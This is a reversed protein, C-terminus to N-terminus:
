HQMKIFKYLTQKNGDYISLLVQSLTILDEGFLNSLEDENGRKLIQCLPQFAQREKFDALVHIIFFLADEEILDLPQAAAHRNLVELFRPVIAGRNGLCYQLTEVPLRNGCTALEEFINTLNRNFHTDSFTKKDKGFPIIEATRPNVDIFSEEESDEDEDRGPYQSPAEGTANTICPYRRRAVKEGFGTLEILFRWEDGYDFIFQMKQGLEHFVKGSKIKEVSLAPQSGLTMDDDMDAFLEYKAQSSYYDDDLNSYFGYAHDFDFEFATVVGEALKSLSKDTTIEVERWCVNEDDGFLSIKFILTKM